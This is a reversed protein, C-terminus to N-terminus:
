QRRKADREDLRKLAHALLRDIDRLDRRRELERRDTKTM